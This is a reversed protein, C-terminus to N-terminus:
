AALALNRLGRGRRWVSLAIPRGGSAKVIGQLDDFRPTPTGNMSLMVDGEKLGADMAASKPLVSLVLAPMLTPGTVTVEQGDRLVWDYPRPDPCRRPPM